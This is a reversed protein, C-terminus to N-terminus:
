EVEQNIPDGSAVHVTQGVTPRLTLLTSRPPGTSSRLVLEFSIELFVPPKEVGDRDRIRRLLLDVALQALKTPSISIATIPPVSFSFWDLDDFCILSIDGPIHIEDQRLVKLVGPMM